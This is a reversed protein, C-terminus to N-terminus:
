LNLILSVTSILYMLIAVIYGSYIMYRNIKINYKKAFNIHDRIVWLLFSGLFFFIIFDNM